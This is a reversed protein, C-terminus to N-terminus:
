TKGATKSVEVVNNNNTNPMTYVNSGHALSNHQSDATIHTM